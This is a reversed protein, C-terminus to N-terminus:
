SVSHMGNWILPSWCFIYIVFLDKPINLHIVCVALKIPRRRMDSVAPQTTSNSWQSSAQHSLSVGNVAGSRGVTVFRSWEVGSRRLKTVVACLSLFILVSFPLDGLVVCQYKIKKHPKSIHRQIFFCREGLYILDIRIKSKLSGSGLDLLSM